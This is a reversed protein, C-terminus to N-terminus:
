RNHLSKTKVEISNTRAQDLAVAVADLDDDFLDAYTDLTMAASAHGLMKQVAKVNAGASVSLSAATHRLDHLTLALPFSDDDAAARKKAGTFWGDRTDPSRQYNVGDGFLISERSKGECLKALPVSLFAPFPVSRVKHSKPTGVIIEGGVAVANERVNIRCRLMDLDKVRLGTAEGWRLGCYALVLLLTGKERAEGALVDVQQHTLYHREKAVKRPLRAGRAPNSPLRRDRVASDLIASLIAHSHRVITASKPIQALWAQVASHTVSGVPTKGWRPEVHIRWTSEEVRATSPKLHTRSALWSAGLAGITARSLTADIFEGTAKRVEVSALFLEADKKTTFGRKTTASHDPKRYQVRYARKGGATSYAIVSGM